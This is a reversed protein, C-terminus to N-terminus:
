YLVVSDLTNPLRRYHRQLVFRACRFIMLSLTPTKDLTWPAVTTMGLMTMHLKRINRNGSSRAKAFFGNDEAQVQM